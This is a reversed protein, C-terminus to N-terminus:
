CKGHIIGGQCNAYGNNVVHSTADLSLTATDTSNYVGFETNNSVTSGHLVVNGYNQIGDELSNTILSSNITANGYNLLGRPYGGGVTNSATISNLTLTGANLIDVTSYSVTSKSLTLAGGTKVYVGTSARSVNFGTITVKAGKGVTVLTPHTVAENTISAGTGAAVLSVSKQIDVAEYFTGTVTITDGNAAKALAGAITHFCSSSPNQDVCLTAAHVQGYQALGAIPVAVGLLALLAASRLLRWHM